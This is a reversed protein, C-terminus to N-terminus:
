AVYRWVVLFHSASGALVFLHWVTHFYPVRWDLGYFVLGATYALGGAVLWAVGEVPLAQLLPVLAILGLWGMVLYLVMSLVRPGRRPRLEQAMGLAGLGLVTGFLSWGWPGRLTVLSFPAYTGAILLYIALHDLRRLLRKTPGNLGHYLVSISYLAVLSAGYLSFGAMKWPDGARAAEVVLAASAALAAMAGLLHTATNLREEAPTFHPLPANRDM